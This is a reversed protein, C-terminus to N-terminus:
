KGAIKTAISFGLGGCIAAISVAVIALYFWTRLPYGRRLSRQQRRHRVRSRNRNPSGEVRGTSQERLAMSRVQEALLANRRQLKLIQTRNYQIETQLRDIDTDPDTSVTQSNIPLQSV